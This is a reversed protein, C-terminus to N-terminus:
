NCFNKGLLKAILVLENDQQLIKTETKIQRFGVSDFIGKNSVVMVSHEGQEICNYAKAAFQTALLIDKYNPRGGRAYHGIINSRISYKNDTLEDLEEKIKQGIGSYVRMSQNATDKFIPEANKASVGEGVLIILHNQKSYINEIETVLNSYEFEFEPILIIDANSVLGSHLTLWGTTRGMVELITIRDHSKANTRVNEVYTKVNEVATNFGITIDTNNVDNDITKPIFIVKMKTREALQTVTALSGDGGIALLYDINHQNLNEKCKELLQIDLEQINNDGYKAGFLGKNQTKLMTGGQNYIEAINHEELQFIDGSYLGEFGYRVGYMSHNNNFAIKSFAHIFSNLGPCDGGSTLIAFNSM